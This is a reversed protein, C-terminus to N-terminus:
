KQSLPECFFTVSINPNQEPPLDCPITRRTGKMSVIRYGAAEFVEKWSLRPMSDAYPWPARIRQGSTNHCWLFCAHYTSWAARLIQESSLASEESFVISINMKRYTELITIIRADDDGRVEHFGNGVIMVARDKEPDYGQSRLHEIFEEPKSIDAKGVFTGDPLRGAAVEARAADVSKQEYDTALFKFGESGINKVWTKLGNAMGCAHEAVVQFKRAQKKVLAVADEFSKTNAAQSAVINRGREVHPREGSNKLLDEHQSLYPHYAEIIGYVGPGREFARAGLETLKGQTTFGAAEFLKIIAAQLAVPLTKLFVTDGAKLGEIKKASKLALIVPVLRYAIEMQRVDAPWGDVHESHKEFHLWQLLNDDTVTQDFANTLSKVVDRQAYNPLVTINELTRYTDHHSSHPFQRTYGRPTQDLYGLHYLFELDFGLQNADLGKERAYDEIILERGSLLEDVIGLKKHTSLIQRALWLNPPATVAASYVQTRIVDIAASISDIRTQKLTSKKIVEAAEHLWKLVSMGDGFLHPVQDRYKEFRELTIQAFNDSDKPSTDSLIKALPIAAPHKQLRAHTALFTEIYVDSDVIQNYAFPSTLAVGNLHQLAERCFVLGLRQATGVAQEAKSHAADAIRFSDEGVWGSRVLTTIGLNVLTRPSFQFM